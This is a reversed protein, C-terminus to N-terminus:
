RDPEYFRTHVHAVGIPVGQAFASVGFVSNLAAAADDTLTVQVGGLRLQGVRANRKVEPGATLGLDFLPLRGVLSDNV